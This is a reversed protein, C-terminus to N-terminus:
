ILDIEEFPQVIVFGEGVFELQMSETSKQSLFQQLKADVKIHPNLQDSWAITANANTVIPQGESVTLILPELHSTIAVTGEGELRINYLGAAKVTLDIRMLHIDAQVTQEFALINNTNIRVAENELQFLMIKKGQDALYLQGRGKAKMLKMGNGAFPRNSFVSRYVNEHTFQIPESYSIVTGLKGYLAGRLNAKLLCPTELTFIESENNCNVNIGGKSFFALPM